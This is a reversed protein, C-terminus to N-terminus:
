VSYAYVSNNRELGSESQPRRDIRGAYQARLAAMVRQAAASLPGATLRSCPRYEMESVGRDKRM